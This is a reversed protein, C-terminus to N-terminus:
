SNAQPLKRLREALTGFFDERTCFKPAVCITDIDSGPEHIGLRYSGSTYIRGGPDGGAELMGKERCVDMVWEKFQQEIAVLVQQRRGLESKSEIPVNVEM